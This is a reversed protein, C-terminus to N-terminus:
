PDHCRSRVSAYAFLQGQKADADGPEDVFDMLYRYLGSATEKPSLELLSFGFKGTTGGPSICDQYSEIFLHLEPLAALSGAILQLVVKLQPDGGFADCCWNGTAHVRKRASVPMRFTACSHGAYLKLLEREVAARSFEAPAEPLRLDIADVQLLDQTLSVVRAESSAGGQVACLGDGIGLSAGFQRTGSVVLAENPALAPSIM